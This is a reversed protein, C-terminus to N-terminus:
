TAGSIAPRGSVARARRSRKFRDVSRAAAKAENQPMGTRLAETLHGWFPYLRQNAMELIGGVYSPKKRDLFLDTDPSNAYRDGERTLFGLAVLTDLFDLAARPHLGLRGSLAAFSEPGRALEPVRGNSRASLTKSALDWGRAYDPRTLQAHM